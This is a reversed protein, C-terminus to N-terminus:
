GDPRCLCAYHVTFLREALGPALRHIGARVAWKLTATARALPTTAFFLHVERGLPDTLEATVVLGARGAITHVADRDLRQLHGIEGAHRRKSSRRASLNEELPVEVLVARCARAVEALLAQPEDVHELVHSLIGLDYTGDPDPLERGDYRVVSDIEPRARAISVAAEAIEVGSLRGRLGRRRLECLLAGDGCGVDLTNVPVVRAQQCLALVHNAKAVAGLARWRGFMATGAPDRSYADEYFRVHTSSPPAPRPPDAVTIIITPLVRHKAIGGNQIQVCTAITTNTSIPIITAM